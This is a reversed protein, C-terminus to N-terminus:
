YYKDSEKGKKQLFIFYRHPVGDLTFNAVVEKLKDNYSNTFEYHVNNIKKM